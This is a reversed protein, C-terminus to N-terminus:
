AVADGGCSLLGEAVTPYRFRLKLEQQVRRNVLRRSETWFGLMAPSLVKQAQELSLSPPPPLGYLAAAWTFYAGMKLQTDDNVNFVRGPRARWLALWCARALDDAHIHNTYVDDAECLVPTGRLLREKPTGQPRDAAYIGPARLVSVRVGQHRLGRVVREAAVRRRARLTQPRPMRREDVWQGQCDGYVGSTSVYALARPLRGRRLARVLALTRADGGDVATALPPALHVCHTALGALRRLSAPRDLDGRLPVVGAERLSQAQAENRILAYFQVAPRTRRATDGVKGPAAAVRQRLLRTGVDGCGIVLVRQRRFRAPLAVFRATFPPVIFGKNM